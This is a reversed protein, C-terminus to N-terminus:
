GVYLVLNEAQFSPACAQSAPTDAAVKFNSDSVPFVEAGPMTRLLEGLSEKPQLTVSHCSSPHHCLQLARQYQHSVLATAVLLVPVVYHLRQSMIMFVLDDCAQVGHWNAQGLM